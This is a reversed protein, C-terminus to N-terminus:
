MPEKKFAEDFLEKPVEIEVGAREKQLIMMSRSDRDDWGRGRAETMEELTLNAIRMPVGIEKGLQTALTVDKHALRLAFSAPDFNNTLFHEPVKDFTRRRGAAGQRVATWLAMPDLGAKVGMTFVEAFVANMMYGSCNHVLKAIAGAGIPGVYMARDGIDDLVEKNENYQAEDGGVWLAMKGSAAGKPGGSVPADFLHIGKEAMEAHVRRVLTPSNTTLDFYCDGPSLGEILGNEGLAVAEMEVPGPLSTFVVESAKGLDAPTDAWTAGKELHEKASEKNIDHVTVDHGAKILNLAMPGGMTGLGIYGVKM